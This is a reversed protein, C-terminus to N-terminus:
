CEVRNKGKNKAMYMKGDAMKILEDINSEKFNIDTSSAIGASITVKVIEGSSTKFDLSEVKKRMREAAVCAKKKDIEPMMILFEEGGFRCAVDSSRIISVIVDSIKKLVMDGFLHGYTDNVKKFNDIDIFILSFISNYRISRNVERELIELFHRKNYLKTLGDKISLNKIKQHLYAHAAVISIHKAFKSILNKEERNFESSRDFSLAIIIEDSVRKFEFLLNDENFETIDEGVNSFYEINFNVESMDKGTTEELVDIIKVSFGELYTPSLSFDSNIFIFIEESACITLSYVNADLIDSIIKLLSKISNKFDKNEFVTSVIYNLITLEFLRDDLQKNLLSLIDFSSFNERIEKKINDEEKSKNKNLLKKVKELLIESPEDKSIYEDAGTQFGWFYHRAETLSTLLIIPISSSLPSSKLLRTLQYGNMKPMDIDSVVIDPVESFFKEVGEIGDEAEIVEYGKKEFLDRYMKRVMQSDEVLLIKKKM